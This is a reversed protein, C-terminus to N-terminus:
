PTACVDNTSLKIDNLVGNVLLLATNAGEITTTQFTIQGPADATGGPVTSSGVQSTDGLEWTFDLAPPNPNLVQWVRVRTPDPSCVPILQLTNTITVDVDVVTIQGQEDGYILQNSDASWALYEVDTETEIIQVIELTLASLIEIQQNHGNAVAILDHELNVALDRTVSLYDSEALSVYTESDFMTLQIGRAVIIEKGSRTWIFSSIHGAISTFGYEDEFEEKQSIRSIVLGTTADWVVVEGIDGINLGAITNGGPQWEVQTVRHPVLQFEVPSLGSSINTVVIRGKTSASDDLTGYGTVIHEGDPSFAVSYTIPDTAIETIVEGTVVNIIQVGQMRSSVALIESETPHWAIDAGYDKETTFIVEETNRDLVNVTGQHSVTAALQGDNNLEIDVVEDLVQATTSIEYHIAITMLVALIFIKRALSVTVMKM